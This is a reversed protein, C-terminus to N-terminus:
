RAARVIPALSIAEPGFRRLGDRRRDIRLNANTERLLYYRLQTAAERNPTVIKDQTQGNTQEQDWTEDQVERQGKAQRAGSAESKWDRPEM